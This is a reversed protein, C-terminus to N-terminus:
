SDPQFVNDRYWRYTKSVGEKIGIRASYGTLEYALETLPVRREPSGPTTPGEKITMPRGVTEVVLKGLDEMSLEEEQNGVNVIQGIASSQRSLRLVIELADDIYCFARRHKPSFVELDTKPEGMHARALLEPIVHAMGMRPGYVNHLRVITFPCNSFRCLEEGYIKSLMYSTRPRDLDAITLPTSEPTPIPMTFYELTGAYVESTSSFVLRCLNKQRGALSIVEDLMAVNKVLVEYPREEVNKVGIIAALHFIFDFDKPFGNLSGSVSLDLSDFKVDERQCLDLFDRDAAGRCLNDVIHISFGQEVLAKALWFGLFGAGGTILVKRKM